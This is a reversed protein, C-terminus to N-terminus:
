TDVIIVLALAAGAFTMAESGLIAGGFILLISVFYAVELMDERSTM